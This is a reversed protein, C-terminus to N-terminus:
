RLLLLRKTNVYSGAQLRYFYVGSALNSGNFKVEYSGAEQQAQILVAVQQGLTNYVALLVQSRHPLSYSITTSPNFPNPYNQALSYAAAVGPGTKVAIPPFELLYQLLVAAMAAAPNYNALASDDWILAGIPLGDIVSLHGSQSFNETLDTFKTIGVQIGAGDTVVNDSKVGNIIGPLTTPDYDGYIYKSSLINGTATFRPDGYANQNWVAMADVVSADAIGKTVTGPDATSTRKELFGGNGPGYADFLAQTRSNMWEGPVNRVPFPPTFFSWTLYSPLAGLASDVYTSSAYYGNVLLPDYYNINDSVFIRLKTLDLEHSYHSSDGVYYKGQVVVGDQASVSDVNITSTFM